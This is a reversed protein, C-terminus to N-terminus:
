KRGGHQKLLNCAGSKGWLSARHYPTRGRKDTANVYAGMELLLSILTEVSMINVQVVFFTLRCERM